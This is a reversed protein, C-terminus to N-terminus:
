LTKEYPGNKPQLDGTLLRIFDILAWIGFGGLTLLQVIGQWTYGLYFRHVGFVGAFFCALVAILQSKGTGGAKRNAKQAAKFAVKQVFNMKKGTAKQFEKVSMTSFHEPTICSTVPTPESSVPKVVAAEVSSVLTLASFLVVLNKKMYLKQITCIFASKIEESVNKLTTTIFQQSQHKYQM